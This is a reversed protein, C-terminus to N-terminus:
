IRKGDVAKRYSCDGVTLLRSPCVSAWTQWRHRSRMSVDRRWKPARRTMGLFERLVGDSEQDERGREIQYLRSSWMDELCIASSEFVRVAYAFNREGYHQFMSEPSLAVM